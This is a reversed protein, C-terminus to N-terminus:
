SILSMTVGIAPSRPKRETIAKSPTREVQVWNGSTGDVLTVVAVADPSLTLPEDSVIVGNVVTTAALTTAGSISAWAALMVAMLATRARRSM